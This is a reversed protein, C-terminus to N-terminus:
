EKPGRTIARADDIGEERWYGTRIMSPRAKRKDCPRCGCRVNKESAM